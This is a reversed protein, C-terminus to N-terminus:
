EFLYVAGVATTLAIRGDSDISLGSVPGTAAPVDIRHLTRGDGGDLVHIAIGPGTTDAGGPDGGGDDSGAGDTSGGGARVAVVM